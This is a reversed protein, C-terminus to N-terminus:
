GHGAAKFQALMNTMCTEFQGHAALVASPGTTVSYGRIHDSGQRRFRVLFHGNQFTLLLIPFTQADNTSLQVGGADLTAHMRGASDFDGAVYEAQDIPIDRFGSPKGNQYLREGVDTTISFFMLNRSPDGDVRFRVTVVEPAPFNTIYAAITCNLVSGESFNQFRFEVKKPELDEAAALQLSLAIIFAAVAAALRKTAM